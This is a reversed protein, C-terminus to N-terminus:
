HIFQFQSCEDEIDLFFYESPSAIPHSAGFPHTCFSSSLVPGPVPPSSLSSSMSNASSSTFKPIKRSKKQLTISDKSEMSMLDHFALSARKMTQNISQKTAKATEPLITFFTSTRLSADEDEVACKEWVM